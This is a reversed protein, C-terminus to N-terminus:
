DAIPPTTWPSETIWRILSAVIQGAIAPRPIGSDPTEHINLAPSHNVEIIRGPDAAVDPSVVDIGIVALDLERALDIATRRLEAGVTSSVDCCWGGLSANSVDNLRVVEDPAPIDDLSRSGKGLYTRLRKDVAITRSHFPVAENRAAILARITHQGDGVVRAPLRQIGYVHRQDVVLVRTDSGPAQVQVLAKPVPLRNAGVARQIASALEATDTVGVSIGHGGSGDVPKVVLPFSALLASADEPDSAVVSDPVPYGRERLVLDTAAKNQAVWYAPYSTRDTLTRRIPLLWHERDTLLAWSRMAGAMSWAEWGQARAADVLTRVYAGEPRHRSPAWPRAGRATVPGPRPPRRPDFLHDLYHDLAETGFWHIRPSPDFGIITAPAEPGRAIVDIAVPDLPLREAVALALREHRESPEIPVLTAGQHPHRGAALPNPHDRRVAFVRGAVVCLQYSHGDLHPQAVAAQMLARSRSRATALARRADGDSCVGLTTGRGYRGSSPKVVIREHRARFALLTEPRIVVATHPVSFGLRHLFEASMARDYAVHASAAGSRETSSRFILARRTGDSIEYLDMMQLNRAQWGRARARAVIASASSTGM